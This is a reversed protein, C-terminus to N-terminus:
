EVGITPLSPLDDNVSDAYLEPPPLIEMVEEHELYSSEEAPFLLSSPEETGETTSDDIGPETTERPQQFFTALKQLAEHRAQMNNGELNGGDVADAHNSYVDVVPATQSNGINETPSLTDDDDCTWEESDDTFSTSLPHHNSSRSGTSVTEGEVATTRGAAQSAKKGLELMEKIDLEVSKVSIYGYKNNGDRALWKGKPCNTTRIISVIDGSKVPLDDKRGKSPLIVKAQYMPEEQGTIKFKKKMENEKKEREKQEKKEKELRQKEKKKLEKDDHAEPSAKRENRSNFFWSSKHSEENVPQSDAYPNKPAGKRKRANQGRRFKNAEVDEYVNDCSEYHSEEQQRGPQPESEKNIPSVPSDPVTIGSAEAEPTETEQSGFVPVGLKVDGSEPPGLDPAGVNLAGLDPTGPEAYDFVGAEHTLLQPAEFDSAQIDPVEPAEIQPVEFEVPVCEPTDLEPAAFSLDPVAPAELANEVYAEPATTAYPSLDVFPPRAPKEPSPGLSELDPLFKRPPPIIDEMGLEVGGEISPSSHRLPSDDIKNDPSVSAASSVRGFPDEYDIPPLEPCLRSPTMEGPQDGNVPSASTPRASTFPVFKKKAKELANLVRQDCPPTRSGTSEQDATDDGFPPADPLESSPAQPESCLGLDHPINGNELIPTEGDIEEALMPPLIPLPIDDINFGSESTNPSGESISPLDESISAPGESTDAPNESTETPSESISIPGESTNPPVESISIPGESTNPPAESISIPGESTNPPAESISIPGESTNPPAESINPPAESINPSAESINPLAESINPPAESINPPAESIIPPAENTNPPSEMTPDGLTNVPGETTDVPSISPNVISETTNIPVEITNLPVESTDLPVETTNLPGESTNLPAESTNTLGTTIGTPEKAAKSFKSKFPLFSKKKPPVSKAPPAPKSKDVVPPVPLVLPLKRDKFALKVVNGEKKQQHDLVETNFNSDRVPPKIPVPLPLPRKAESGTKTDKFVVRPIVPNKSEVAASISSLLSVRAGPPPILKPKEPIAPKNKMQKLAAEEQFMARLAKFDLSAEQEM